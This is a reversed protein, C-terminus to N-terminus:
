KKLEAEQANSARLVKTMALTLQLLSEVAKSFEGPAVVITVAKILHFPRSFTIAFIGRFRATIVSASLASSGELKNRSEPVFGKLLAATQSTRHITKSHIIMSVIM